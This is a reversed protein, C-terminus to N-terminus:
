AFAYSRKKKNELIDFGEFASKATFTDYDWRFTAKFTRLNDSKDDIYLIQYRLESM